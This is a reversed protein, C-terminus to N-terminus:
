EETNELSAQLEALAKEAAVARQEQANALAEIEAVKRVLYALHNFQQQTNQM